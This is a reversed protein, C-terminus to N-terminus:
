STFYVIEISTSLTIKIYNVIVVKDRTEKNFLSVRKINMETGNFPIFNVKLWLNPYPWIAASQKGHYQSM